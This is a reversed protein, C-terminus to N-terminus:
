PHAVLSIEEDFWALLDKIKKKHYTVGFAWHEPDESEDEGLLMQFLVFALFADEGKDVGVELLEVKEQFPIIRNYETEMELAEYYRDQAEKAWAFAEMSANFHEKAKQALDEIEETKRRLIEHSFEQHM